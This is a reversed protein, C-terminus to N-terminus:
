RPFQGKEAELRDLTGAITAVSGVTAGQHHKM